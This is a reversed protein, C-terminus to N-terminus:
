VVCFLGLKAHPLKMKGLVLPFLFLGHVWEVGRLTFWLTTDRLLMCLLCMVLCNYKVKWCYFRSSTAKLAGLPHQSTKINFIDAILYIHIFFFHAIQLSPMLPAHSANAGEGLQLSQGGIAGRLIANQGRSAGRVVFNRNGGSAMQSYQFGSTGPNFSLIWSRASNQGCLM